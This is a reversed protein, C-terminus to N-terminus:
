LQKNQLVTILVITDYQYKEFGIVQGIFGYDTASPETALAKYKGAGDVVVFQNIEIGKEDDVFTTFGYDSIGFVDDEVIEYARTRKKAKNIYKWEFQDSKEFDRYLLPVDCIFAIKDKIAAYDCTRLQHGDSINGTYAGVKINMGQELDNDENIVDYIHGVETSKLKSTRAVMYKKDENKWTNDNNSSKWIVGQTYIAM